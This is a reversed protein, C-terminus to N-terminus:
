NLARILRFLEEVEKRVMRFANKPNMAEELSIPGDMVSFMATIGYEHGKTADDTVRGALAIVPVDAEKALKGMGMPAKGMVTQFDLSGEGTIVLDAWGIHQKMNLKEFVISAGPRLEANLFALFGGGLGGAAGAGPIDSIEKNMQSEITESFHRLGHDLEEIMGDTAGKQRAYVHAAGNRGYLPNDVDCAILFECAALEPKLGSTDVTVIESLSGGTPNLRQHDKDLFEVGLAAMMGMGADNTASGGIGIIFKRCGKGMADLILEGLGFTTTQMPNRRNEPVLPLGSSSAMDLIATQDSLIGYEAEVPEFLPGKVEVRVKRGGLAEILADATGEGGDALPMKRVSYEGSVAVIGEEIADALEKTTLSGKFSDVAILINMHSFNFDM